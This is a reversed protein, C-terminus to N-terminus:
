RCECLCLLSLSLHYLLKPPYGLAIWDSPTTAASSTTRRQLAYQVTQVAHMGLALNAMPALANSLSLHSAVGQLPIGSQCSTSANKQCSALGFIMQPRLALPVMQAAHTARAFPPITPASLRLFLLGLRTQPCATQSRTMRVAILAQIHQHVPLAM